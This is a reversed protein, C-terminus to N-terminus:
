NLSCVYQPISAVTNNHVAYEIAKGQNEWNKVANEWARRDNPDFEAIEGRKYPGIKKV